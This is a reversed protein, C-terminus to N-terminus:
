EFGAPRSPTAPRPPRPKSLNKEAPAARASRSGQIGRVVLVPCPAENVLSASVSGLLIRRGRSLGRSGVVLLEHPHSVLFALLAPVVEGQLFVPEVSTVGQALAAKQFEEILIALSKGESDFPALSELHGDTPEKSPPHVTGVTVSSHFRSAIEVAVRCARRSEPTGDFAVFIRDFM